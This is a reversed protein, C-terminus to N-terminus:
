KNNQIDHITHFSDLILSLSLSLRFWKWISKSNDSDIMWNNAIGNHRMLNNNYDCDHVCIISGNIWNRIFSLFTMERKLIDCKSAISQIVNFVKEDDHKKKRTRRQVDMKHGIFNISIFDYYYHAKAKKREGNKAARWGSLVSIRFGFCFVTAVGWCLVCCLRVWCWPHIDNFKTSVNAEHM